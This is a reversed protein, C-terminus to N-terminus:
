DFLIHKNTKIKKRKPKRKRPVLGLPGLRYKSKFVNKCGWGKALPGPGM